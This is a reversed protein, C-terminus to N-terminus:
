RHTSSYTGVELKRKTQHDSIQCCKCNKLLTITKIERPNGSKTTLIPPAM